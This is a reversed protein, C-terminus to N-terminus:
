ASPGGFVWWWETSWRDAKARGLGATREVTVDKLVQNPSSPGAPVLEDLEFNPQEEHAPMLVVFQICGM